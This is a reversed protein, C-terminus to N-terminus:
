RRSLKSSSIHVVTEFMVASLIMNPGITVVDKLMEATLVMRLGTNVVAEFMLARLVTKVCSRSRLEEPSACLRVRHLLLAPLCLFM